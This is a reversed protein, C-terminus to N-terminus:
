AVSDDLDRGAGWVTDWQLHTTPAPHDWGAQSSENKVTVTRRARNRATRAPIPELDVVDGAPGVAAPRIRLVQGRHTPEVVVDHDVALSERDVGVRWGLPSSEEPGRDVARGPEFVGPFASHDHALLRCSGLCLIRSVLSSVRSGSRDRIEGECEKGEPPPPLPM